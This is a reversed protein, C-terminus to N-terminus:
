VIQIAGTDSTTFTGELSYRSGPYYLTSKTAIQQYSWTKRYLALCPEAANIDLLERIWSPPILAEVVHQIKEVPAAKLLYQTTATQTFDQEIYGPFIKPNVIRDEMLIPLGDAKHVVISHFVSSYPKLEMQDALELSAKEECLLRVDSSYECGKNRIEEAISKIELLASQSKAPAIFTGNGQKRILHGSNTLERLARNVTMRSTQFTDVLKAESPIKQHVLWEGSDIKHLIYEMIQRYMPLTNKEINM